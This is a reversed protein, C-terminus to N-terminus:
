AKKIRLPRYRWLTPWNRAAAMTAALMNDARVADVFCDTARQAGYPKLTLAFYYWYMIVTGKTTATLVVIVMAATYSM